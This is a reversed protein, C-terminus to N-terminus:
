VSPWAAKTKMHWLSSLENVDEVLVADDLTKDWQARAGPTCITSYVDWMSVGVFKAEARYITLTPDISNLQTVTVGQSDSVHRWKAEPEQLLSTYYIYSRRLLSDFATMFQRRRILPDVAQTNSPPSPLSHSSTSPTTSATTSTTLISATDDINLSLTSLNRPEVTIISKTDGNVKLVKSGALRQIYVKVRVIQDKSSLKAHSIRLILRGNLGSEVVAVWSSETTDTVGKMEIKVDWGQMSSLSFEIARELRRRERVEDVGVVSLEEEEVISYGVNLTDQSQDFTTAPGLQLSRGFSSVLPIHTGQERVYDIFDSLLSAIQRHQTVFLAGKLNWQWFVTIRAKAPAATPASTSPLSTAASVLPLLQICWATFISARVYPPAANLYAPSTSTRPLSKTIDIITSADCFTKSITM